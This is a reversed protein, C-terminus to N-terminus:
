AVVQRALLPSPQARDTPTLLFGRAQSGMNALLDVVTVAHEFTGHLQPYELYGAYNTYVLDIGAETFRQTDMYAAASPGSIYTAAELSECMSVLRQTPDGARDYPVDSSSIINTDIGLVTTIAEILRVNIRSLYREHALEEYVPALVSFVDTAYPAAAMSQRLTALHKRTWRGDAVVTEDIRRSIHNGVPISLWQLGHQTKIRNRSRWDQSTFQVEDYIVFTDVAAIIDFYGKWPIYSSQLVAVRTGGRPASV